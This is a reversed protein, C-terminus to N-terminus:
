KPALPGLKSGCLGRYEAVLIPFPRSRRNQCICKMESREAVQYLHIEKKRDKRRRWCLGTIVIIPNQQSPSPSATSEDTLSRQRRHM